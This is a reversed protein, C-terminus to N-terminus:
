DTLAYELINGAPIETDDLMRLVAFKVKEGKKTLTAVSEVEFVAGARIIFELEHENASLTEYYVGRADKIAIQIDGAWAKDVAVGTSTTSNLRIKNGPTYFDAYIKNRNMTDGWSAMGRFVATELDPHGDKKLNELLKSRAGRIMSDNSSNITAYPLVDRANRENKILFNNVAKNVEHHARISDPKMYDLGKIEPHKDRNQIVKEIDNNYIVMARSVANLETYTSSTYATTASQEVTTGAVKKGTTKKFETLSGRPMVNTVVATQATLTEDIYQLLNAKEGFLKVDLEFNKKEIAVQAAIMEKTSRLKSADITPMPDYMGKSPQAGLKYGVVTKLRKHLANLGDSFVKASAPDLTTNAIKIAESMEDSWQAMRKGFWPTYPKGQNIYRFATDNIFEASKQLERLPIKVKGTLTLNAREEFDPPTIKGVKAVEVKQAKVAAMSKSLEIKGTYLPPTNSATRDGKAVQLLYKGTGGYSGLLRDLTAPSVKGGLNIIIEDLQVEIWYKAMNISQQITMKGTKLKNNIVIAKDDISKLVTKIESTLQAQVQKKVAVPTVKKAPLLKEAIYDRRAKLTEALEKKMPASMAVSKLIDDIQQNTVAAVAKAGDLLSKNTMGNFVAASQPNISKDILTDLETVVAGFGPKKAGQARYFLAGGTDLRIASKGKILLNDFGLGVVDWNALWADAVFGQHAGKITKWNTSYGGESLDEIIESAVAIRGKGWALTQMKPTDIGAAQYLRGAIMENYAHDPTQPVKIYYTKGTTTDRYLGGENSGKQGGIQTLNGEKLGGAPKPTIPAKPTIAQKARENNILFKGASTKSTVEGVNKELEKLVKVANTKSIALGKSIEMDLYVSADPFDDPFDLIEDLIEKASASTITKPPTPVTPKGGMGGSVNITPLRDLDIRDGGEDAILKALYADKDFAPKPTIPVPEPKPMEKEIKALFVKQEDPTLAKFAATESPSPIKGGLVKKKYGSLKAAASAKAQEAKAIDEVTKLLDTASDISIVKGGALEKKLAKNKLTQGKPNQLIDELKGLSKQSEAQQLAKKAKAASTVNPDIKAYKAKDAMVAAKAVVDTQGAGKTAAKKLEAPLANIKEEYVQKLAKVREVGPNHNWGPDTGDLITHTKGTRPNVWKSQKIPPPNTAVKLGMEKVELESLQIVGCRCNWGNPPYHTKWFPNDWRLVLGDFQSHEPRTRGDDVAVYMLYPATKANREITEWKGTSYASQLNTRFITDLRSVSGLQVESVLGTLPDLMEARGWWGKEVLKPILGEKFQRFSDGNKISQKLLGQTTELLDNDMMKAVTFATDHEQGVMDRWDFSPKLGKDAFFGVAQEPELNFVSDLNIKM